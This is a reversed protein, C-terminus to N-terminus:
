PLPPHPALLMRVKDVIVNLDEDKNLYDQMGLEQAVAKNSESSFGPWPHRLSTLFAIKVEKTTENQRLQLAADTGTPGPPMNIDMLVLDPMLEQTVKVAEIANPATATDFGASQLKAPIIERFNEEDDVVLILPKERM